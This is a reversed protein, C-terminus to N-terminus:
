QAPGQLYKPTIILEPSKRRDDSFGAIHRRVLQHRVTRGQALRAAEPADAYSLVYDVRLGELRHLETNLTELNDQSFVRPSYERFVREQSVWYPPDLYVFDGERVKSLTKTFDGAVFTTNILQRSVERLRTRGPLSGTKGGGYPVNFAGRLNTRYLGNFCYRNLYIFRAARATRNRRAPVATRLRYYYEKDAPPMDELVDAVEDPRDRITRYTAILDENLDGLLGSKPALHFFLAASGAFPEVYRLYRSTWYDALVPVLQRKSGAWRFVGRTSSM